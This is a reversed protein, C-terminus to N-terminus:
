DSHILKGLRRALTTSPAEGFRQRYREAFRGLEFFGLDTAISTVTVGQSASLLKQRAAELRRATIFRNPSCGHVSKFNLQLSRVGVGTATAVEDVSIVEGLHANIWEEARRVQALATKHRLCWLFLRM